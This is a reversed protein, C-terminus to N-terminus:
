RRCHFVLSTQVASSASVCQMGGMVHYTGHGDVTSTNHDANNFVFQSFGNDQVESSTSMTVSTEYKCIERYSISWGFNRLLNILHRSRFRRHLFVAIGGESSVRIVMSAGFFHYISCCEVGETQM